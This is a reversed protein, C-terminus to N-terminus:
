RSEDLYMFSLFTTFLAVIVAVHLSPNLLVLIGAAIWFNKVMSKRAKYANTQTRYYAHSSDLKKSIRWAPLLGKYVWDLWRHMMHSELPYQCKVPKCAQTNM